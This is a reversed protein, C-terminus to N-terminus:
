NTVEYTPYGAEAVTPVEPAAAIRKPTTVALARLRGSKVYQLATAVSGFILQTTGAITDNLAPGTGKYPVHTIRIGATYLFYETAVHVHSGNGSSAYALKDPDRKALAVLEQLTKAPVSPNVAVVYPGRSLQVIPTIDNLADFSLKYVSPNVTYSAPTLLLTYGDPPSKVVVESGLTSGAGPRNEVIVQTGFRETLKQAIVRAIFDSGGGPAFGVVIKVPKAPYQQAAAAGVALSAILAALWTAISKM